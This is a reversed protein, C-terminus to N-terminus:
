RDIEESLREIDQKTFVKHLKNAQELCREYIRLGKISDEDYGLEQAFDVYEPYNEKTYNYDSVLIDYIDIPKPEIGDLTNAISDGFTFSCQKANYKVTVIYCNRPEKDDEFYRKTGDPKFTVKIRDKIRDITEQM